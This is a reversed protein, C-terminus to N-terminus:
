ADESIESAAETRCTRGKRLRSGAVGDSQCSMAHRQDDNVHNYLDLFRKEAKNVEARLERENPQRTEEAAQTAAVQFIWLALLLASSRLMKQMTTREELQVSVAVGM